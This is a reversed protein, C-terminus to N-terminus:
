SARIRQALELEQDLQQYAQQLRKNIRNIEATKESLRDHTEKLRLLAQVQAMLEGAVFPRLLYTDAGAEFSALRSAPNHDDTVFLIPVFHDELRPRLRRCLGLAEATQGSGDLVVLRCRDGGDPDPTGLLHGVVEHAHGELVRRLDTLVHVHPACVLVRPPGASM